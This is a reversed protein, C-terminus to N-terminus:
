LALNYIGRLRLRDRGRRALLHGNAHDHEDWWIHPCRLDALVAAFLEDAVSLAVADRTGYKQQDDYKRAEDEWQQQQEYAEAMGVM